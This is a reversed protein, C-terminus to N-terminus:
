RWMRIIKKKGKIQISLLYKSGTVQKEETTKNVREKKKRKVIM